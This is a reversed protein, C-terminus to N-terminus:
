VGLAQGLVGELYQTYGLAVHSPDFYVDYPGIVPSCRTACFWPTVNVYTAGAARAADREAPIFRSSPGVRTTSCQRITRELLCKPGPSSPINGLVVTRRAHLRRLTGALARTWQAQTYPTGDPQKYSEQTVILLDPRLANIRAFVCPHWAACAHQEGAVASVLHGLVDAAPCAGKALLVFRWGDRIAIDDIATFWMEAHSDGYLVITRTAKV